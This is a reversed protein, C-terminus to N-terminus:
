LTVGFTVITVTFSSCPLPLPLPSATFGCHVAGRVTFNSTEKFLELMQEETLGEEAPAQHQEAADEDLSPGAEADDDVEPKAVSPQTRIRELTEFKKMIMEVSEEDEVYGV